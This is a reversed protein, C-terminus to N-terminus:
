AVLDFLLKYCFEQGNPTTVGTFKGGGDITPKAAAYGEEAKDQFAMEDSFIASATQSRLVDAGQPVAIIQSNLWPFDLKCYVERSPPDKSMDIVRPDCAGWKLRRPLRYYSFKTRDLVANADDEKKSQYFIKKGPRLAMWLHLSSMLWTVFLQRSKAIILLKNKEWLDTINELYSYTPFKRIPAASEHEDLTYIYETCFYWPIKLAIEEKVREADDIVSLITAREQETLNKIQTQM